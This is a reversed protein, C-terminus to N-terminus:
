KGEGANIEASRALAENISKKTEDDLWYGGWEQIVNWDDSGLLVGKLAGELIEVRKQLTARETAYKTAGAHYAQITQNTELTHFYQDEAIHKNKSKHFAIAEALIQEKLEHTM